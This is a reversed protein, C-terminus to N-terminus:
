LLRPGVPFPAALGSKAASSPTATLPADLRAGRKAPVDAAAGCTAPAAASSSAAWGASSAASPPSATTSRASTRRKRSSDASSMPCSPRSWSDPAPATLARFAIARAAPAATTPAPPSERRAAISRTFAPPVGAIRNAPSPPSITSASGSGANRRCPATISPLPQVIWAIPPSCPRTISASPASTCPRRILPAAPAPSATRSASPATTEPTVESPFPAPMKISFALTRMVSAVTMPFKPGPTVKPAPADPNRELLRM